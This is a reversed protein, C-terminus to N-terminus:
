YLIASTSLSAVREDETIIIIKQSLKMELKSAVSSTITKVFEINMSTLLM